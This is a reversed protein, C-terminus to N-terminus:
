AHPVQGIVAGTAPNTVPSTERGTRDIWEGDIFLFLEDYSTSM